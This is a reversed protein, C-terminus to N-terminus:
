RVTVDGLAFELRGNEGQTMILEFGLAPMREYWAVGHMNDMYYGPSVLFTIKEGLEFSSIMGLELDTVREGADESVEAEALINGTKRDTLVLKRTDEEFRWEIRKQLLDSYDELSFNTEQMTGYRQLIHLEEAAAGTGTYIPCSMQLREHAEDWYLEPMLARPSTYYWDYYYTESDAEQVGGSRVRRFEIVVGQCKIEEDNYGYVRIDKEPIEGICLIGSMDPIDGQTFPLARWIEKDVKRMRAIVDVRYDVPVWIGYSGFPRTMSITFTRQDELFTIDLGTLNDGEPEHLTFQVKSPDNSLNLLFAAASEPEFLGRYAMNSSLLANENLTEGLGNATYDMMTGSIYPYAEEYEAGTSINDYYTLEEGTIVYGDGEWAYQLTERWRTIHPDSTHAFYDIHAESESYDYYLVSDTDAFWPWPSSVGFSYNGASGSLMEDALEKTVMGAIAEGDRACFAERWNILFQLLEKEREQAEKSEADQSNEVVKTKEKIAALLDETFIEDGPYCDNEVLVTVFLLEGDTEEFVLYSSDRYEPVVWGDENVEMGGAPEMKEPSASFFEYNLQYIEYKKDELEEYTYCHELHEIRWDTYDYDAVSGQLALYREKVYENAYPRVTEYPDGSDTDEKKPSTLFCVAAIICCIVAAAVVWFAPKKYNLVNKIREKVGTEGFALPCATVMNQRVSCTLLAHAYPKKSEEGMERIVREDCAAEIDRCFLIYSLWCLPDFWYVALILFGLPKWLHDRRKLHAREHAIVYAAQGSEMASPLYIRPRIMGLIFPTDIADCQFVRDELVIQVRTLRYLRYYSILAYLILLFLGAAWVIGLVYIMRSGNDAPVSVGEYYHDGLYENVPADVLGIGTHVRFTNETMIQRPLPESEPVLSFVSEITVPCVLKFAVLAWLLCHIWKPTKKLFFRLLLAALILWSATLGMNLIKLFINGM